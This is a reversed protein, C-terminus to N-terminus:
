IQYIGYKEFFTEEAFEKEPVPTCGGIIGNQDEGNLPNFIQKDNRIM